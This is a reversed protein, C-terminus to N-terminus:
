GLPYNNEVWKVVDDWNYARPGDLSRNYPADFILVDKGAEQFAKINSPSDDIYLHADIETKHSTFVLDRYPINKADLWEATQAVVKGHQMHNVFRSTIVRIHYGADSLRWLAESAGDFVELNAYMGAEVAEGHVRRFHEESEFGWKSEVFSYFLPEPLSEPTVGFERACYTRMYRYYHATVGDLDLGLRITKM